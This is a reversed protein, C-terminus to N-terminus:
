IQFRARTLPGEVLEDIFSEEDTGDIFVKGLHDAGLIDKDSEPGSVHIKGAFVYPMLTDITEIAESHAREHVTSMYNSLNVVRKLHDHYAAKVRKNIGRLVIFDPGWPRFYEVM